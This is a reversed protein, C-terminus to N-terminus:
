TFAMVKLHAYADRVFDQAAGMGALREAGDDSAVIAVHDFLSSPGGEVRQDAALMTGDALTAGAITEAVVKVNAGAAEAQKVVAHVLPAPAGDTVLLGICRGKLTPEMKALINLAPSGEREKPY